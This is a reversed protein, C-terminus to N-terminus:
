FFFFIDFIEIAICKNSFSIIGWRGRYRYKRMYRQSWFEEVWGSTKLSLILLDENNGGFNGKLLFSVQSVYMLVGIMKETLAFIM